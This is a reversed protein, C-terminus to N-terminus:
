LVRRVSVQKFTATQYLPTSVAHYPDFKTEFNMIMTSISPEEEELEAALFWVEFALFFGKLLIIWLSFTLFKGVGDIVASTSVDTERDM